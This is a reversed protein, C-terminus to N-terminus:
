ERFHLKRDKAVDMGVIVRQLDDQGVGLCVHAGMMNAHAIDDTVVGKWLFADFDHALQFTRDDFAVVVLLGRHKAILFATVGEGLFRDIPRAFLTRVVVLFPQARQTKLALARNVM